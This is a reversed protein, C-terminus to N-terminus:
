ARKQKIIKGDEYIWFTALRIAFFHFDLDWNEVFMVDTPMGITCNRYIERKLM